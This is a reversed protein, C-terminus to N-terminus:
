LVSGTVVQGAADAILYLRALDGDFEAPNVTTEGGAPLLYGTATTVGATHGYYVKGANGPPLSLRVGYRVAAAALAPIASAQVAATGVVAQFTTAPM